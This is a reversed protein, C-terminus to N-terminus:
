QSPFLLIPSLILCKHAGVPEYNFNQQEQDPVNWNLPSRRIAPDVDLIARMNERVKDWDDINVAASFRNM